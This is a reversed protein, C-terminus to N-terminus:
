DAAPAPVLLTLAVRRATVPDAFRADTRVLHGHRHAIGQWGSEGGQRVAYATTGDAATYAAVEPVALRNIPTLQLM